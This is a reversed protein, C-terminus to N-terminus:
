RMNDRGIRDRRVNLQNVMEKVTMKKSDAEAAVADYGVQLEAPLENWTENVGHDAADAIHLEQGTM